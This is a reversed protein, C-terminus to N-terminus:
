ERLPHHHSSSLALPFSQPLLHPASTRHQLAPAHLVVYVNEFERATQMASIGVDFRSKSYFLPTVCPHMFHWCCRMQIKEASEGGGEESCDTSEMNGLDDGDTM